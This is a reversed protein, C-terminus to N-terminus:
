TVMLDSPGLGPDSTDKQFPSIQVHLSTSRGCALVPADEGQVLLLEARPGRSGVELRLAALHPHPSRHQTSM